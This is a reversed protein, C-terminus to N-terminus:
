AGSYTEPYIVFEIRRNAARGAPTANSVRPYNDGHSVVFLQKSPMRNRRTLQEFVGQSQSATLHHKSVAQNGVGAVPASDAHGEIGVRQRPYNRRIADAVSDLVASSSPTFQATGPVFLQDAPVEIRIVDGDARVTLGPIEVADLSKHVSNNATITASGQRRVSAQFTAVQQEVEQKALQSQQLQTAADRLQQQVLTLQDKYLTTEQQVKALQAHLDRNNADLDAIRRQADQVQAELPSVPPAQAYPSGGQPSGACGVAAAAVCFLLLRSTGRPLGLLAMFDGFHYSTVAVASLDERIPQDRRGM